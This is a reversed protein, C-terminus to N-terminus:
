RSIPELHRGEIWRSLSHPLRIKYYVSDPPVAWTNLVEGTIQLKPINVNDGVGFKFRPYNVKERM